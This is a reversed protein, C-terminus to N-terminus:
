LWTLYFNIFFLSSLMWLLSARCVLGDSEKARLSLDQRFGTNQKDFVGRGGGEGIKEDIIMNYALRDTIAENSISASTRKKCYINQNQIFVWINSKYNKLFIDVLSWFNNPGKFNLLIIRFQRPTRRKLAKM